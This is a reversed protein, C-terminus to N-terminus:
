RRRKKIDSQLQEGTGFAHTVYEFSEEVQVTDGNLFTVVAGGEIETVTTVWMGSACVLRGTAADHLSVFPIM